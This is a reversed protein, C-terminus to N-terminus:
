LFQEHVGECKLPRVFNTACLLDARLLLLLLLLLDARAVTEHHMLVYIESTAALLSCLFDTGTIKSLMLALKLISDNFSFPEHM